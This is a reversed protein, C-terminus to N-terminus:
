ILQVQNLYYFIFLLYLFLFLPLSKLLSNSKYSAVMAKSYSNAFTSFIRKSENKALNDKSISRIYKLNNFISSTWIGISSTIQSLDRGFKM